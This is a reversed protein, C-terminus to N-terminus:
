LKESFCLSVDAVSEGPGVAGHLMWGTFPISWVPTQM